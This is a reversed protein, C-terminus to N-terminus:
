GYPTRRASLQSITAGGDECERKEGKKRKRLRGSLAMEVDDIDKKQAFSAFPSAECCDM